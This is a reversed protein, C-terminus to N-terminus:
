GKRILHRLAYVILFEDGEQVDTREDDLLVSLLRPQGNERKEVKLVVAEYSMGGVVIKTPRKAKADRRPWGGTM